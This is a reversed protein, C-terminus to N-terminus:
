EEEDFANNWNNRRTLDIIDLDEKEEEEINEDNDNEMKIPEIGEAIDEEEDKKLQEYLDISNNVKISINESLYDIINSFEEDNEIIKKEWLEPKYKLIFFLNENENQQDVQKEGSLYRSIYKRVTTALNKKTIKKPQNNNFYNNLKEIQNVNLKIKYSEVVNGKIIDYSLYEIFEYIDIIESIINNKLLKIVIEPKQVFNPLNEIAKQISDDEKINNKKNQYYFILIQLNFLFTRYENVQIENKIREKKEKSLKIQHYNDIFTQIANSNKGIYGEFAYIIFEQENSFKRKGVLLIKGLEVEIKNFDYKIDRYNVFNLEKNNNFCNRYSYSSILEYFSSIIDNSIRNNVVELSTAKQPSIENNIQDKLYKLESFEINLLASNLFSNQYQTFSYYCAAIYMGYDLEGNDNLIYAIPDDQSIIKENNLRKCEYQISNSSMSNYGKEFNKYLKTINEDNILELEKKILITKAEKRTIKNSYKMLAYNEFPNMLLINQLKQIDYYNNKYANIVSIKEQDTLKIAEWFDNENPYKPVTFYRIYPYINQDLKRPDITEQLISKISNNNIKLTENNIKIYKEYLNNYNKITEEILKNIEDEFKIRLKSEEFNNSNNIINSLKEFIINLFIQIENIGKEVLAKKLLNWTEILIWTLDKEKNDNLLFMKVNDDNIFELIKGYYICSYFIFNLLRYSIKSLKRVEKEESLFFDLNVKKFGKNEINKLDEIEKKYEPLFKSKFPKYYSRKEVNKKQEENLYIRIHGEREILKHSSGGIEKKCNPCKSIETPLGCPPISYFFGCSCIYAGQKHDNTRTLFEELHKFSLIRKDDNSEGGPIFNKNITEIVKPSLLNKYFSDEKGQSCLFAYKHSYLLIEYNNIPINKIYNMTENFINFKYYLNLLKNTIPSLQRKELINQVYTTFKSYIQSDKQYNKNCLNSIIENISIDYFLYLGEKSQILDQISKVEETFNVNKDNIFQTYIQQYKEINDINIFLFDLNSNQSEFNFENYWIIQHFVFNFNQLEDFNNLKLKNICKLIYLKLVKKFPNKNFNLFENIENINIEQNKKEDYLIDSLILLYCKIYAVSYLIGIKNEMNNKQTEIIFEVSKKFYEFSLNLIQNSKKKIEYFYSNIKTEFLYLLIEDLIENKSNNIIKGTETVKSYISTFSEICKNINNGSLPKLNYSLFFYSLLIHSKILINKDNIILDLM